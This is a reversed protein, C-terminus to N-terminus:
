AVVCRCSDAPCINNRCLQVLARRATRLAQHAERLVATASTLFLVVIALSVLVDPWATGLQRVALAAVIVGVNALIDNRSCIWTSRMNLDDTRHQWLMALCATNAALALLAIWGMVTADPPAAGLVKRVLQITIGVGFALMIVGKLQAARARAHDTGTVALLSFGYVLTDGLMDLSDAQLAVSGAVLGAILEVVFMTANIALVTWLTRRRRRILEASPSCCATSM